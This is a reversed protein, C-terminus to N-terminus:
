DETIFNFWANKSKRSFDALLFKNWIKLLWNGYVSHMRKVISEIDNPNAQSFSSTWSVEPSVVIPVGASVYDATVVNFTESFSLQMGLNMNPLFDTFKDADLWDVGVLMADEYHTFLAELNRLVPEGGTEIRSSNVYFILKYKLSRAFIIAAMAQQLHNKFPRIAGFCGVRLVSQNEAPNLARNMSATPVYVNPLYMLDFKPIFPKLAKYAKECNVITLVGLAHAAKIWEIAIGELALFPINSHLHVCWKVKPHLKM